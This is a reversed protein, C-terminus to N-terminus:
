ATKRGKLVLYILFPAGLLSTFVSVPLESAAACRAFIDAVCLLIGGFLGSLLMTSLNNRKAAGRACHPAILGVFSILGTLSVVCSVALTAIVLVLMRVKGVPVGLMRAEDEDASLLMVQRHLAFLAAVM